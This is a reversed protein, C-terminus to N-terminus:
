IRFAYDILILKSQRRKWARQIVRVAEDYVQLLNLEREKADAEDRIQKITRDKYKLAYEKNYFESYVLTSIQSLLRDREQEHSQHMHNILCILSINLISLAYLLGHTSSKTQSYQKKM